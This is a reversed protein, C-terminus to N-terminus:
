LPAQEGGQEALDAEDEEDVEEQGVWVDEVHM